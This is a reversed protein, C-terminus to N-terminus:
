GERLRDIRQEIRRRFTADGHWHRLLEEYAALAADREGAREHLEAFFLHAPMFKPNRQRLDAVIELTREPQGVQAYAQALTFLSTGPFLDLAALRAIGEAPRGLAVLAIGAREAVTANRPNHALIREYLALADALRGEDHLAGARQMLDYEARGDKPDLGVGAGAEAAAGATYGLAALRSQEVDSPTRVIGTGRGDGQLAGHWRELEALAAALVEPEASALDRLEGPDAALDYREARPALIVKQRGAIRAALPSWGFSYANTWAEAYVAAAAPQAAGRLVPALDQGHTAALPPLGALALLTPAVDVLSVEGQIRAGQAVGPGSFVLPVAVTSDYVFTGHTLEGHDGLSEGHDATVVVLTRELWGRTRLHALVRGLEDDVYALEADYPHVGDAAFRAPATYPHHADFYHAFVFWPADGRADLWRLLMETTSAADREERGPM